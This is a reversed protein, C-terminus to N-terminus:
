HPSQNVKKTGAKRPPVASPAQAMAASNRRKALFFRTRRAAALGSPRTESRSPSLRQAQLRMQFTKKPKEADFSRM